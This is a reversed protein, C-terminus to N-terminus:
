KILTSFALPGSNPFQVARHDSLGFRLACETDLTWHAAQCLFRINMYLPITSVFGLSSHYFNVLHFHFVLDLPLYYNSAFCPRNIANELIEFSDEEAGESWEGVEEGNQSEDGSGSNM